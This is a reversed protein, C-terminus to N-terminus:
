AIGLAHNRDDLCDCYCFRGVFYYGYIWDLGSSHIRKWSTRYFAPGGRTTSIPLFGKREISPSVVQWITMSVLILAITIFFTATPITWAMWELTM